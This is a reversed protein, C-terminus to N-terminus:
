VTNASPDFSVGGIASSGSDSIGVNATGSSIMTCRSANTRNRASGASCQPVPQPPGTRLVQAGSGDVPRAAGGGTLSPPPQRSHRSPPCREGKTWM